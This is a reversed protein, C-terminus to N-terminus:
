AKICLEPLRLPFVAFHDVKRGDIKFSPFPTTPFTWVSRINRGSPDPRMPRGVRFASSYGINQMEKYAQTKSTDRKLTEGGWRNMPETYAERVAEQDWYYDHGEWLNIRKWLQTKGKGNCTPCKDSISWLADMDVYGTGDCEPCKIKVKWNPPETAVEGQTLQNVWRYDAKPKERTGGGDRHTWYQTTGSKTLMLIYEHSETPRDTVSEPMPNNKSWIIVSRVWWGDEEAAIQIRAPILCLDKPKLGSIKL